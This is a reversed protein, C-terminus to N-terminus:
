DVDDSEDDDSDDTENNNKDFKNSNNYDSIDNIKNNNNTDFKDYYKNNNSNIKNSKNEHTKRQILLKNAFYKDKIFNFVLEAIYTSKIEGINITNKTERKIKQNFDDSKLIYNIVRNRLYTKLTIDYLVRKLYEDSISSAQTQGINYIKNHFVNYQLIVEKWTRDLVDKFENKLEDIINKIISDGIRLIKQMSQLTIGKNNSILEKLKTEFKDNTYLAYDILHYFYYGINNILKRNKPYVQFSSLINSNLEIATRSNKNFIEQLEKKYYMLENINFFKLAVNYKNIVSNCNEYKSKLIKNTYNTLISICTDLADDEYENIFHFLNEAVLKISAEFRKCSLRNLHDNTNNKRIESPSIDSGFRLAMDIYQYLLYELLKRYEGATIVKKNYFKRCQKLFLKCSELIGVESKLYRNAKSLLFLQNYKLKERYENFKEHDIYDINTLQQEDYAFNILDEGNEVFTNSDFVVSDISDFDDVNIVANALAKIGYTSSIINEISKYPDYSRRKILDENTEDISVKAYYKKISEQLDKIKELNQTIIANKESEIEADRENNDDSGNSNEGLLKDLYNEFNEFGYYKIINNIEEYAKLLEEDKNDHNSLIELDCIVKAINEENNM